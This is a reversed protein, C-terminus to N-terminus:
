RESKKPSLFLHAKGRRKGRISLFATSFERPLDCMAGIQHFSLRVTGHFVIQDRFEPHYALVRQSQKGDIVSVHPVTNCVVQLQVEEVVNQLLYPAICVEKSAIKTYKRYREKGLLTVEPGVDFECYLASILRSVLFYQLLGKFQPFSPRCRYICDQDVSLPEHNCVHPVGSSDDALFADRLLERDIM